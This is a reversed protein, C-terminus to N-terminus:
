WTGMRSSWKSHEKTKEIVKCFRGQIEDTVEWGKKVGWIQVEYLMRLECIMKHINELLGYM